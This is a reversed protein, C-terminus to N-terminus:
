QPAVAEDVQRHYREYPQSAQELCRQRENKDIIQDCENRQWAQGTAYVQRKSCGALAYAATLTVIFAIFLYRRREETSRGRGDGVFVASTARDGVSNAFGVNPRTWSTTM